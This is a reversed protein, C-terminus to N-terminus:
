IINNVVSTTGRPALPAPYGHRLYIFRQSDRFWTTLIGHLRLCRCSCIHVVSTLKTTQLSCHQHLPQMMRHLHESSCHVKLNKTHAPPPTWHLKAILQVSPINWFATSSFQTLTHAHAHLHVSPTNWCLSYLNCLCSGHFFFFIVFPQFVQYWIELLLYPLSDNDAPSRNGLVRHIGIEM